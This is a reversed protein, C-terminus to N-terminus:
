EGNDRRRQDSNTDFIYCFEVPVYFAEAVRRRLGNRSLKM